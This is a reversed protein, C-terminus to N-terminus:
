SQKRKQLAKKERWRRIPRPVLKYTFWDIERHYFYNIEAGIMMCVMCFYTFIMVVALQTLGKYISFGNFDTVYISIGFLLVHWAAACFLAGPLQCRLNFKKRTLRTLNPINRYLLAFLFVQYLFVLVYRMAYVVHIYWPLFSLSDKVLANITTGIFVVAVTVVIILLFAFTHMMARLRVVLWNRNEYTNHVRNLGNTIAHIGKSASWLTAILSIISISMTQQYVENFPVTIEKVFSNSIPSGWIFSFLEPSLNLRQLISMLLILFPVASLILFFATQGAIAFINDRSIKKLFPQLWDYIRKILAIM